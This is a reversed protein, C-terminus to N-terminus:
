RSETSNVQTPVGQALFHLLQNRSPLGDNDGPVTVQMAGIANGRIVADQMSIGDLLGSIVGVAFGDGAGVTDVVSDVVFGPVHFAENPRAVYAGEEGLKIIVCPVGKDLYFQAISAVDHQGTLLRGEELGPMVVDCQMAVKNVTAIMTEKDPWLNPRLNPDFTIPLNQVKAREVLHVAAHRCEPSLALPIGTIHVHQCSSLDVQRVDEPSLHSAATHKRFYAVQPDGQAVKSKLQFGTAHESDLITTSPHIGEKALMNLIYRGFPDEGVRTIYTVDYGLRRLGISVNLEAGAMLRTFHEARELSGVEDAVFMVMPEGLTVISKM